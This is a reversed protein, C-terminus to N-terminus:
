DHGRRHNAASVVVSTRRGTRMLSMAVRQRRHHDHSADGALWSGQPASAPAVVGAWLDYFSWFEIMNIKSYKKSPPLAGAIRQPYRM